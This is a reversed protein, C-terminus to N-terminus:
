KALMATKIDHTRGLELSRTGIPVLSTTGVTTSRHYFDRIIHALFIGVLNVFLNCSHGVQFLYTSIDCLHHSSTSIYFFIHLSSPPWNPQCKKKFSIFNYKKQYGM